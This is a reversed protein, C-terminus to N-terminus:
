GILRGTPSSHAGNGLMMRPIDTIQSDNSLGGGVDDSLLSIIRRIDVGTSLVHGQAIRDAEDAQGNEIAAILREHEEFSSQIRNVQELQLRVYPALRNYVGITM